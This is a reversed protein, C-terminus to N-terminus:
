FGNSAYRGLVGLVFSCGDQNRFLPGVGGMRMPISAINREAFQKNADDSLGGLLSETADMMGEDHGQAYWDSLNPRLTQLIYHSMPSLCQVLIQWACQVDPDVVLNFSSSGALIGAM